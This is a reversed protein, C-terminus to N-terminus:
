TKGFNSVLLLADFIDVIGNGDLDANANWSPSSPNSGFAKALLLADAVDVKGDGNIDGAIAHVHPIYSLVICFLVLIGVAKLNM